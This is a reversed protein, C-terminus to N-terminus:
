KFKKGKYSPRVAYLPDVNAVVYALQLAEVVANPDASSDSALIANHYISTDYGGDAVHQIIAAAEATGKATDGAANYQAMLAASVLAKVCTNKDIIKKQSAACMAPGQSKTYAAILEDIADAPDKSPFKAKATNTYITENYGGTAIHMVIDQAAAGSKVADGAAAYQAMLAASILSKICTTKDLILPQGAACMSPGLSKTGQHILDDTTTGEMQAFKELWSPTVGAADLTTVLMGGLMALDAGPAAMMAGIGLLSICETKSINVGQHATCLGPGMAKVGAHVMDASTINSVDGSLTAVWSSLYPDFDVPTLGAEDLTKVLNEAATDSAPGDGAAMTMGDKMLSLCDDKEVKKAVGAACLSPGLAALGTHLLADITTNEVALAASEFSATTFNAMYLAGIYANQTAPDTPNVALNIAALMAAKVTAFSHDPVAWLAEAGACQSASSGELGAIFTAAATGPLTAADYFAALTDYDFAADASLLTPLAGTQAVREDVIAQDDCISAYKGCNAYLENFLTFDGAAVTAGVLVGMKQGGTMGAIAMGQSVTKVTADTDNVFCMITSAAIPTFGAECTSASAACLAGLKDAETMGGLGSVRAAAGYQADDFLCPLFNAGCQDTVATSCVDGYLLCMAGLKEYNSLTPIAMDVAADSSQFLCPAYGLCQETVVQSCVNANATCIAGVKEYNGVAGVAQGVAGDATVDKAYALITEEASMSHLATTLVGLDDETVGATLMTQVLNNGAAEAQAPTGTAMIMGDKLLSLCHEKAIKKAVAASCLGPGTSAVYKAILSQATDTGNTVASAHTDFDEAKAGGLVFAGVLNSGAAAATAADGAATAVAMDIGAKLVSLCSDKSLNKASGSACTSPGLAALGAFITDSVSATTFGTFNASAVGATFMETVIGTNAVLAGQADGSLTAVQADVGLKTLQLCSDKSVDKAAAAACLSPGLAVLGTHLLADITTNEVALAASEFSATTFNAMYLAGIYANQTAPDTPNVALNIAALM